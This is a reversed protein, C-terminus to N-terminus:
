DKAVGATEEEFEVAAGSGDAEFCVDDFTAVADLCRM